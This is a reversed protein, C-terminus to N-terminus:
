PRKALLASAEEEGQRDGLQAFGERADKAHGQAQADDGAAALARAIVLNAGAVRYVDPARAERLLVLARGALERARASQGRAMELSAHELLASGLLDYSDVAQPGLTEAQDVLRAAEATDGLIRDAQALEVGVKLYYPSGTGITKTLLDLARRLHGSGEATRGVRVLAYGLQDEAWAGLDSEAAADGRRANDDFLAVAHSAPALAEAPRGALTEYLALNAYITGVKPSDAGVAREEEAIARHTADIARDVHGADFLIGSLGNYATATLSPDDIKADSMRALARDFRDTPARAEVAAWGEELDLEVELRADGGLREIGAAALRRWRRADEPLALWQDEVHALDLAAHVKPEDLRLGDALAFAEEFRPVAAKPESSQQSLAALMMWSVRLPGYHTAEVRDHVRELRDFGAKSKGADIFAKATALEGGLAITEARLGRDAPLRTGASLRDIQACSELPPLGRTADAAHKVIEGDAASLVEAVARLADLREDLCSIRLDLAAESQEGRVRTAVCAQETSSAWGAAYDDLAREVRNWASAAYSVHSARFAGEVARKRPVDWVGGLRDAMAQCARVRRRGLEHVTAFTALASLAVAAGAFWRHRTKAPDARLEALLAKMSAPRKARDPSMGRMLARHVWPPVDSDPPAPRIRGEITATAVEHMTEGEFPREGYLARYLTASFAFVDAREDVWGPEDQPDYQEPAMYGPTGLLAGSLTLARASSSASEFSSSTPSLHAPLPPLPRAPEPSSEGAPTGEAPRALGFDTVKPREGNAMLVNDLKFDRHVIGARHAAALGDGAECLVRVVERWSRVRKRRRDRRGKEPASAPDGKLWDALTGGEVIEMALFVRGDEAVSVDYVTVVNPHSLRAMAQAERLLKPRHEDDSDRLLKLAVRRDLQSDYASYVAGMGGRGLTGLIMYRGLTSGRPLESVRRPVPPPALASPEPELSTM